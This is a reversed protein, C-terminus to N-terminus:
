TWGKENSYTEYDYESVYDFSLDTRQDYAEEAITLLAEFEKDKPMKAPNQLVKHFVDKGKSVVYCRAYLFLDESFYEDETKYSNDGIQEAHKKTDLIPIM